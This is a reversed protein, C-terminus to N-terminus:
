NAEALMTRDIADVSTVGCLGMTTAMEHKMISLLQDVGEEGRASLAYVWARGIMVADAGLAMMRVVDLGSRVGGDALIKIDNGVAERIGPLAHASSIAGDLQRGGHNSVVIADAGLDACLRADEPDLIGKVILPKKWKERIARLHDWNVSRDFNKSLWGLFDELGSDTGLASAVNGLRHPRGMLGVDYSWRPHTIAQWARQLQNNFASPGSLGSREVRYRKSPMPLDVTFVLASCGAADARALMEDMFGKDKLMYLQFWFPANTATSVEEVSCLSVTSLTFPVGHREAARAAQVEGRRANMGAIGVPALVIPASLEQGFLSTSLDLTSIDRMVRQRVAIGALDSVNRKLTTETFSGGDIYEFLFPPLRRRAAERFDDTSAIIM